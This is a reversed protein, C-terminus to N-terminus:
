ARETNRMPGARPLMAAGGACGPIRRNAPSRRHVDQRREVDGREREEEQRPAAVRDRDFPTGAAVGPEIGAHVGIAVDPHATREMALQAHDIGLDHRRQLVAGREEGRGRQDRDAAAEGHRARGVLDVDHDLIQLEALRRGRRLPLDLCCAQDEDQHVCEELEGPGIPEVVVDRDHEARHRRRALAGRHLGFAVHQARRLKKFGRAPM